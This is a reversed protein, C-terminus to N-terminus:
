MVLNVFQIEKRRFISSKLRDVGNEHAMNKKNKKISIKVTKYIIGHM